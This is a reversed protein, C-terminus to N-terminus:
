FGPPVASVRDVHSMWVDLGAPNDAFANWLGSRGSISLQAHGFERTHGGETKGGLQAAMTQMGYCIGLIPVAADFVQQPARPSNLETTSDPGCAM